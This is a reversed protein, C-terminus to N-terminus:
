TSLRSHTTTAAKLKGRLKALHMLGSSTLHWRDGDIEIYGAASLQFEIDNVARHFEDDCVLHPCMLVGIENSKIPHTQVPLGKARASLILEDAYKSLKENFGPYAAADLAHLQYGLKSEVQRNAFQGMRDKSDRRALVAGAGEFCALFLDNWTAEVLFSGSDSKPRSKLHTDLGRTDVFPVAASWSVDWKWQALDEGQFLYERNSAARLAANEAELEMVKRQLTNIQELDEIRRANGARIWGLAPRFQFSHALAQIVFGKLEDPNRYQKILKGRAVKTRFAELKIRREPDPELVSGKLDGLDHYLFGIVPKRQAIAFDYEMETFSVGTSALSGYKGAVVVIYYDSSDIERKVFEWQEDDASPFLEMGSPFANMELIAQLVKQREQELDKFTSSVFVQYRREDFQPM